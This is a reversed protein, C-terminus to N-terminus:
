SVWKKNELVFRVRKHKINMFEKTLFINTNCDMYEYEEKDIYYKYTNFNIPIGYAKMKTQCLWVGNDERYVYMSRGPVVKIDGTYSGTETLIHMNSPTFLEFLATCFLRHRQNELNTIKYGNNYEVKYM